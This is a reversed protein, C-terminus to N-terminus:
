NGPSVFESVRTYVGPVGPRACGFGYSVVGVVTLKQGDYSFLPGGSDGQCADAGNAYACINGEYISRGYVSACAQNSVIQLPAYKLNGSIRGNERTVGWGAVYTVTGPSPQARNSNLPAVPMRSTGNLTILAADYRNTSPSYRSDIEFKAVSFTEAGGGKALSSSGLVVKVQRLIAQGPFDALCHAATLILNPAILTGGCFHNGNIQLSAVSRFYKTYLESGVVAGGVVKVSSDESKKCAASLIMALAVSIGLIMQKM